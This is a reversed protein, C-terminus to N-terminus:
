GIFNLQVRQHRGEGKLTKVTLSKPNIEVSRLRIALVTIWTLAWFIIATVVARSDKLFKDETNWVFFLAVLFGSAFLPAVVYKYIYTASSSRYIKQESSIMIRKPTIM